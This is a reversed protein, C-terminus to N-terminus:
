VYSINTGNKCLCESSMIKQVCFEKSFFYQRTLKVVYPLMKCKFKFRYKINSNYPTAPFRLNCFLFLMSNQMKLQSFYFKSSWHFMWLHEIYLTLCRFCRSTFNGISIHTRM